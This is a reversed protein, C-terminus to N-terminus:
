WFTAYPVHKPSSADIGADEATAPKEKGTANSEEPFISCKGPDVKHSSDQSSTADM